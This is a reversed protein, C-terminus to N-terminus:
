AELALGREAAHVRWRSHRVSCDGGALATGASQLVAWWEFAAKLRSGLHSDWARFLYKVTDRWRKVPADMVDRAITRNMGNHHMTTATMDITSTGAALAADEEM